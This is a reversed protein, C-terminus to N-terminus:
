GDFGRRKQPAFRDINQQDQVQGECKDVQRFYGEDLTLYVNGTKGHRNLRVTCHTLRPYPIDEEYAGARFLGMWLDVDQEIQGTDRSDSPQPKRDMLPRSEIGRNLQTLLLVVCGLERALNKLGKTVAGYALDNREAKEVGMLTLYDVCILGVQGNRKLKRAEAKIHGLTIGPTDDIYLPKDMRKATYEQMMYYDDGDLATYFKSPSMGAGQSVMREWIQQDPMEMSFVLTQLGKEVFHDVFMTMLASKGMKPRAGIAVLSGKPMMKPHLLADLDRIGTSYGDAQKTGEMREALELTWRQAIDKIHKPGNTSTTIGTLATLAKEEASKLRDGWALSKDTLLTMAEQLGFVANREQAREKVINAYTFLNATSAHSNFLDVIYDLEVHQCKESVLVPDVNAGELRLAQIATWIERSETLYFDTSTILRSLKDAVEGDGIAMMAALVAHESEASYSPKIM